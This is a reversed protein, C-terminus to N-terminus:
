NIKLLVNDNEKKMLLGNTNEDIGNSVSKTQYISRLHGDIQYRDKVWPKGSKIINNTIKSRNVWKGTGVTNLLIETVFRYVKYLITTKGIITTDVKRLHDSSDIRNSGQRTKEDVADDHDYKYMSINFGNDMTEDRVKCIKLPAKKCVSRGAAVKKYFIKIEPLIDCSYHKLTGTIKRNSYANIKKRMQFILDDQLRLAKIVDKLTNPPGDFQIPVCDEEPAVVCPRGANQILEPQDTTKSAVYYLHNLRWGLKDKCNNKYSCICEGYDASTFSIGRCALNGAITIIRPFIYVGGNDKLYQYFYGPNINQFTHIGHRFTSTATKGGITRVTIPHSPLKPSAVLLGEGNFLIFVIKNGYDMRGRNFLKRQPKIVKGINILGMVPVHQNFYPLYFPNKQSFQYLYSDLNPDKEFPDDKNKNCPSADVWNEPSPQLFGGIGRYGDPKDLVIMNDADIKEIMLNDLVTASVGMSIIAHEKLPKLADATKTGSTDMLDCEDIFVTYNTPLNCNHIIEMAENIRALQIDNGLAVFIRTPAGGMSNTFDDIDFHTDLYEIQYPSNNIHHKILFNQLLDNYQHIRDKIQIMDATNRRLVIVTSYGMTMNIAAARIMFSTKGSQVYGKLIIYKIKSDEEQSDPDISDIIDVYKQIDMCEKMAFLTMCKDFSMKPRCRGLGYKMENKSSMIQYVM